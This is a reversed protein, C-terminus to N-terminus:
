IFASRRYPGGCPGCGTLVTGKWSIPLGSFKAAQKPTLMLPLEDFM